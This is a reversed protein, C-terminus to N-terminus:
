LICYYFYNNRFECNVFEIWWIILLMLVMHCYRKMSDSFNTWLIKFNRTTKIIKGKKRNKYNQREQLKRMNKLIRRLVSQWTWSMLKDEISYVLTKRQLDIEQNALFSGLILGLTCKYIWQKWLFSNWIHKCYNRWTLHHQNSNLSSLFTTKPGLIINIWGHWITELYLIFTFYLM